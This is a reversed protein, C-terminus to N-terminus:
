GRLSKRLNSLLSLCHNASIMGAFVFSAEGDKCLRVISKAYDSFTRNGPHKKSYRFYLITDQGLEFLSESNPLKKPGGFRRSLEELFAVKVPNAM